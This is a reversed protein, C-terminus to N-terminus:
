LLKKELKDNDSDDISDHWPPPQERVTDLIREKARLARQGDTNSVEFVTYPATSKLGIKSGIQGCQEPELRSLPSSLSPSLPEM